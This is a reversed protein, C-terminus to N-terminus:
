KQAWDRRLLAFMQLDHHRGGWHGKERLLGEREFGLKALLRESGVNGPVVLAEIRNLAMTEFGFGLIAGVAETAIGRGWHERALDYGIPAAGLHREWANFGCTGVVVDEGRLTVGWRIGQRARFRGAFFAILSRAQDLTTFTHLDYHRTVDPDRFVRFVADADSERLARLVLRETEIRPVSAFARAAVDEVRDPM